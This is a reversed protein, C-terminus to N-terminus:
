LRNFGANEHMSPLLIQSPVAILDLSVGLTLLATTSKCEPTRKSPASVKM